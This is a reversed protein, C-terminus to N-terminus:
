AIVEGVWAALEYPTMVGVHAGLDVLEHGLSRDFDAEGDQNLAGLILVKAGATVMGAVAAKLRPVSGGEYLDTIIVVMARRPETIISACYEAAKAIHTGGGLQVKMLTEVPDISEHSLDVVETDFAVLHSKLAPIGHFVSATVASHIVSDTMSGSQDVAIIVQWRESERRTRSVFLPEAIVLGDATYHKLNARITANPDFNAAVKFRSRRQPDRKGTVAQKIQPRLKEILQAVVRRVIDRAAALVDDNMLHKTNLIAKLLTESPEIRNLTDLDTVMDVMGYRELADAQLTEAVRRPFLENVANIWTPVTLLSPGSGGQGGEGAAGGDNTERDYLFALAADQEAAMGSLGGMAESGEGLILRWRTTRQDDTM